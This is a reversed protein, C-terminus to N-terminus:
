NLNLTIQIQNETDSVLLCSSAEAKTLLLYYFDEKGIEDYISQFEDRYFFLYKVKNNQKGSSYWDDIHNKFESENFTSAGIAIQNQFIENILAKVQRKTELFEKFEDRSRKIVDERSTASLYALGILLGLLLTIIQVASITVASINVDLNKLIPLVVNTVLAILGIVSSYFTINERLLFAKNRFRNRKITM